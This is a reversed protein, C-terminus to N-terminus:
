ARRMREHIAEVAQIMGTIMSDPADGKLLRGTEDVYM